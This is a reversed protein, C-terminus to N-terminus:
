HSANSKKPKQPEKPVTAEKEAEITIEVEAGQKLAVTLSIPKRFLSFLRNPRVIGADEGVRVESQHRFLFPPFTM